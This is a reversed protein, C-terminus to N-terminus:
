TLGISRVSLTFTCMGSLQPRVLFLSTCLVSFVARVCVRSQQRVGSTGLNRRSSYDRKFNNKGVANLDFCFLLLHRLSPNRKTKNKFWTIDRPVGATFVGNAGRLAAACVKSVMPGICNIWTADAPLEHRIGQVRVHVLIICVCVCM